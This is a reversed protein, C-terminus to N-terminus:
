KNAAAICANYDAANVIEIWANPYMDCYADYHMEADSYSTFNDLAKMTGETMMAIYYM